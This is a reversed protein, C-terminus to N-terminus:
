GNESAATFLRCYGQPSVAGQVLRCSGPPAFHACIGCRRSGDPQDQYAVSAKSVKIPAAAADAAAGLIAAVGVAAQLVARRPLRM